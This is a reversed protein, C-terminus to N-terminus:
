FHFIFFKFITSSTFITVQMNKALHTLVSRKFVDPDDDMPPVLLRHIMKMVNPLANLGSSVTNRSFDEVTFQSYKDPSKAFHVFNQYSNDVQGLYKWLDHMSQELIQRDPLKNLVSDIVLETRHEMRNEYYDIRRSVQGIQGMLRKEMMKVFPFDTGGENPGPGKPKILDYSELLDTVIERSFKLLEAVDGFDIDIMSEAQNMMSSMTVVAIVLCGWFETVGTM